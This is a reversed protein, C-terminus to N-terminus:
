HSRCPPETGRVSRHQQMLQLFEEKDTIPAWRGKHDMTKIQVWAVVEKNATWVFADKPVPRRTHIYYHDVYSYGGEKKNLNLKLSEQPVVPSCFQKISYKQNEGLQVPAMVVQRIADTHRDDKPSDRIIIANLLLCYNCTHRRANLVAVGVHRDCYPLSNYVNQLNAPTGCFFVSCCPTGQKRTRHEVSCQAPRVIDKTYEAKAKNILIYVDSELTQVRNLINQFSVNIATLYTEWVTQSLQLADEEMMALSVGYRKGSPSLLFTEIAIDGAPGSQMLLVDPNEKTIKCYIALLKDIKDNGDKVQRIRRNDLEMKQDFEEVTQQPVPDPRWEDDNDDVMDGWLATPEKLVLNTEWNETRATPDSKRRFLTQQGQNMQRREVLDSRRRFLPKANWEEDGGVGMPTTIPQFIIQNHPVHRPNLIPKIAAVAAASTPRQFYGNIKVHRGPNAVKTLFESKEDWEHITRKQKLELIVTHLPTDQPFYSAFQQIREPKQLGRLKETMPEVVWVTSKNLGIHQLVFIFISTDTEERYMHQTHQVYVMNTKPLRPTPGHVMYEALLEFMGIYDHPLEINETIEKRKRPYTYTVCSMQRCPHSLLFVPILLTEPTGTPSMKVDVYSVIAQVEAYKIKKDSHANGM